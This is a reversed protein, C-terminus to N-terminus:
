YENVYDEQTLLALDQTLSERPVEVTITTGCGPASIIHLTGGLERAREQMLVLGFHGGAAVTGMINLEFGAGDDAIQMQLDGDCALVVQIKRADGHRAANGIAERAIAYLVGTVHPELAWQDAPPDFFISTACGNRQAADLLLAELAAPLGMLVIPPQLETAVSRLQVVLDASLQALSSLRLLEACSEVAPTASLDALSRSIEGALQIADDHLVGALRQRERDAASRVRTAMARLTVIQQDLRGQLQHNHFLLGLHRSLSRLLTLDQQTYHDGSRKPGLCLVAHLRAGDWVPLVLVPLRHIRTVLTQLPGQCDFMSRAHEMVATTVAVPVSSRPHCQYWQQRETLLLAFSLDLVKSLRDVVLGNVDRAAAASLDVSLELLTGGTDYADRLFFREAQWSLWNRLPPLAVAVVISTGAAVLPSPWGWRQDAMIAEAALAAMVIVLVGNLCLRLTRRHLLSTIGLFETRVIAMGICAPLLALALISVEAPVLPIGTLLMPVLTLALFPGLGSVLGLALFQLQARQLPTSVHRLVWIVRLVAALLFGALLFFGIPQVLPWFVQPQWWSLLYFPAQFWAPLWLLWRRRHGPSVNPFVLTLDLLAAGFFNLAETAVALAWWVDRIEAPFLALALAALLCMTWFRTAAPDGRGRTLVLAALALMIMGLMAMLMAPRTVTTDPFAIEHVGGHARVFVDHTASGAEWGALVMGPRLGANWASGDPAVWAVETQGSASRETAYLLSAPAWRAVAFSALMLAFAVITILLRLREARSLPAAPDM